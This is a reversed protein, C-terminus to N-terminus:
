PSTNFTYIEHQTPLDDERNRPTWHSALAARFTREAGSQVDPLFTGVSGRLVGGATRILASLHLSQEDGTNELEGVVETVGQYDKNLRSSLINVGEAEAPPMEGNTTIEDVDVSVAADRRNGLVITYDLWTEGAPIVDIIRQQSDVVGSNKDRVNYNVRYRGHDVDSTNRFEGRVWKRNREDTLVESSMVEIEATAEPEPTDTQGSDSNGNDLESDSTDLNEDGNSQCGATLAVGATALFYRRKM